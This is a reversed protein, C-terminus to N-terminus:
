EHGAGSEEPIPEYVVGATPNETWDTPIAALPAAPAPTQCAHAALLLAAAVVASLVRRPIPSNQTKVANQREPIRQGLPPRPM